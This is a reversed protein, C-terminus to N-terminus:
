VVAWPMGPLASVPKRFFCCEGASNGGERKEVTRDAACTGHASNKEGMVKLSFISLQQQTLEPYLSPRPSCLDWRKRLLKDLVM